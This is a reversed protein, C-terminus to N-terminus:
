ATRAFLGQRRGSGARRRRGVPPPPAVPAIAEGVLRRVAASLPSRAAVEQAPRAALMAADAAKIDMPLFWVDRIGCFRDLTARVQGRPDIGLAGARLRNVVVVVPTAGVTARLDAHGRVFRAMGVPDASAVAVILDAARVAALSAANRRPGALDSVIEEDQELSAAVDVITEDAWARCVQLAGGVREATLEPWRGPRNLGTLVEVGRGLPVSIRSLEAPTLGDHDVQRCAAAFGPGEDALGLALALSPAHTDADVLGVRRGDRALEAALEVAVTSRGPAGTPGWVAIVRGTPTPPAPVSALRVHLAEAVRGGDRLPLPPPLGYLQSLRDEGPVESLPVIRVGHRDCLSVLAPAITDRRLELMLLDAATIVGLLDRGEAALMADAAARAPADAAVAASATIGLRGLHLAIDSAATGDVAVVATTM